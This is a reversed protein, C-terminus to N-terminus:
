LNMKKKTKPKVAHLSSLLCQLIQCFYHLGRSTAFHKFHTERANVCSQVANWCYRWGAIFTFTTARNENLQWGEYKYKYTSSYVGFMQLRKRKTTTCVLLANSCIWSPRKQVHLKCVAHQNIEPHRLIGSRTKGVIQLRYDKMSCTDVNLRNISSFSFKFTNLDSLVRRASLGSLAIDLHCPM